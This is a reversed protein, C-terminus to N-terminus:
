FGACVDKDNASTQQPQLQSYRESFYIDKYGYKLKAAPQHFSLDVMDSCIEQQVKNVLFVDGNIHIVLEKVGIVIICSLSQFYFQAASSADTNVGEHVGNSCAGVDLKSLFCTNFRCPSDDDVVAKLCVIRVDECDTLDGFVASFCQTYCGRCFFLGFYKGM